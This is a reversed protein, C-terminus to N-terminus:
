AQPPPTSPETPPAAPATPVAPVFATPVPQPVSAPRPVSPVVIACLPCRLCTGPVRSPPADDPPAPTKSGAEDSAGAASPAEGHCAPPASEQPAATAMPACVSTGGFLLLLALLPAVLLRFLPVSLGLPFSRAVGTRGSLAM